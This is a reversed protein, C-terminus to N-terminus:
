LFDYPKNKTIFFIYQNYQIRQLHFLNSTRRFHFLFTKTYNPAVVFLIYSIIVIVKLPSQLHNQFQVYINM